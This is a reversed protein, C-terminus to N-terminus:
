MGKSGRFVLMSIVPDWPNHRHHHPGEHGIFRGRRLLFKGAIMLSPIIVM